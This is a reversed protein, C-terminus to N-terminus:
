PIRATQKKYPLDIEKILNTVEQDQYNKLISDEFVYCM